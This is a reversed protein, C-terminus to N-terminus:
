QNHTHQMQAIQFPHVFAHFEGHSESELIDLISPLAEEVVCGDGLLATKGGM